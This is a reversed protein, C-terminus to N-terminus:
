SWLLSLELEVEVFPEASVKDDEGHSSILLWSGGAELRFVDLGKMEVNILWLHKVAQQAYIPMKEVRDRRATNPSLVECVWDPPLDFVHSEPLEPMRERRWGALDPVLVHEAMHLEPEDLIWWGGPGDKGKDYPGFLESGLASVVRIHRAKPRPTAVLEGNIIEGTMNEPLRCLDEYSARRRATHAKM